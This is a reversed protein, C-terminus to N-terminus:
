CPCIKVLYQTDVSHTIGQSLQLPQSPMFCWIVVVVQFPHHHSPAQLANYREKKIKNDIHQLEFTSKINACQMVMHPGDYGVDFGVQFGRVLTQRGSSFGGVM